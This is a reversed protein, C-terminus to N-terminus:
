RRRKGLSRLHKIAQTNIIGIGKAKAGYLKMASPRPPPQKPQKLKTRRAVAAKPSKWIQTYKYRGKTRDQVLVRIVKPKHENRCQHCQILSNHFLPCASSVCVDESRYDFNAELLPIDIDEEQHIHCDAETLVGSNATRCSKCVLPYRRRVCNMTYPCEACAPEYGPEEYSFPNPEDKSNVEDVIRMQYRDGNVTVFEYPDDQQLDYTSVAPVQLMWMPPMGTGVGITEIDLSIHVHDHLHLVAHPPLPRYRKPTCLLPIRFKGKKLMDDFVSFLAPRGYRDLQQQQKRRERKARSARGM